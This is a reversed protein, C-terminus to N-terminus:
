NLRRYGKQNQKQQQQVVKKGSELWGKFHNKVARLLSESNFKISNILEEIIEGLAAL